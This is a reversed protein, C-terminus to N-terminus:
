SVQAVWTGRDTGKQLNHILTEWALSSHGLTHAPLTHESCLLHATLKRVEGLTLCQREAQQYTPPSITVSRLVGPGLSPAPLASYGLGWRTSQLAQLPKMEQGRM